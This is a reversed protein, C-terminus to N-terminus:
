NGFSAMMGMKIIFKPPFSGIKVVRHGLFFYLSKTLGLSLFTARILKFHNEFCVEIALM